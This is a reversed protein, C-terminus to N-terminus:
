VGLKSAQDETARWHPLYHFYVVTAGLIAGAMQAIIYPAVDSWPFAGAMAFGLTVAPNIHAGSIQGVAYVAMTVAFGWGFAVVIWGAGKVHSKNLTVGANVGCGLVILFATGVVEGIVATMM